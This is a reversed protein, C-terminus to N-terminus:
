LGFCSQNGTSPVYGTTGFGAKLIFLDGLNVCEDNNYDSCCHPDIWPSCHGFAVKLAFLDALNVNGDCTGDGSGHGACETPGQCGWDVCKLSVPVTGGPSDVTVEKEPDDMVVGGRIPNESVVIHVQGDNYECGGLTLIVLDGSSAPANAEGVYLSGIEITIANYDDLTGPYSGSCRCSGWDTVTGGADISISGMHVYYDSNVCNVEAITVEPDDRVYIDLAFARVRSSESGADYSITVENPGPGGSVSIVVDGLVPAATGFLVLAVIVKKM